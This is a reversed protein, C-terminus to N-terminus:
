ESQEGRLLKILLLFVLLGVALATLGFILKQREDLPAVAQSVAAAPRPEEAPPVDPLEERPVDQFRDGEEILM